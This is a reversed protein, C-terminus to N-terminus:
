HKKEFSYVYRTHRSNINASLVSNPPKTASLSRGTTGACSLELCTAIIMYRHMLYVLSKTQVGVVAWSYIVCTIVNYAINPYRFCCLTDTPAIMNGGEFTHIEMM